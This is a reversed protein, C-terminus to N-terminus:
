LESPLSKAAQRCQEVITKDEFVEGIAWTEGRHAHASICRRVEKKEKCYEELQRVNLGIIGGNVCNEYDQSADAGTSCCVESTSNFAAETTCFKDGKMVNLLLDNQNGLMISYYHDKTELKEFTSRSKNVFQEFNLQIQRLHDAKMFHKNQFIISSNDAMRNDELPVTIQETGDKLKGPWHLWTTEVKSTDVVTKGHDSGNSINMTSLSKDLSFKEFIRGTQYHADSRNYTFASASPYRQQLIHLETIMSHKMLCDNYAAPQNRWELEENPDLGINRASLKILTWPEIELLGEKQYLELVNFFDELISQIYIVQLHIGFHNNLQLMTLALQWYEAYFLPSYCIGVDVDKETYPIKFPLEIEGMDPQRSGLSLENMSEEVQCTAVFGMWECTSYTPSYAYDVHAPRRGESGEIGRSHCM